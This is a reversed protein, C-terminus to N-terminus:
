LQKTLNRLLLTMSTKFIPLLITIGWAKVLFVWFVGRLYIFNDFFLNCSSPSKFSFDSLNVFKLRRGKGNHFSNLELLKIKWILIEDETWSRNWKEWSNIIGNIAIEMYSSSFELILLHKAQSRMATLIMLM